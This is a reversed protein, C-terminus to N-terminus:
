GSSSGIAYPHISNPYWPLSSVATRRRDCPIRIDSFHLDDLLLGRISNSTGIRGSLLTSVVDPLRAYLEPVSPWGSWSRISVDTPLVAYATGNITDDRRENPNRSYRPRSYNDMWVVVCGKNSTTRVSDMMELARTYASRRRLLTHHHGRLKRRQSRSLSVLCDDEQVTGRWCLNKEVKYMAWLSSKFQTLWRPEVGLRVCARVQDMSKRHRRVYRLQLAHEVWLSCRGGAVAEAIIQDVNEYAGSHFFRHKWQLVVDFASVFHPDNLDKM